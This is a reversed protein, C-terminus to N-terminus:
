ININNLKRRGPDLLARGKYEQDHPQQTHMDYVNNDLTNLQKHQRKISVPSTTPNKSVPNYFTYTFTHSLNFRTIMNDRAVLCFASLALKAFWPLRVKTTFNACRSTNSDHHIITFTTEWNISFRDVMEHSGWCEALVCNYMINTNGLNVWFSRQFLNAEKATTNRSTLTDQNKLVEFKFMSIKGNIYQM